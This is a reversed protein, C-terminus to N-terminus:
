ISLLSAPNPIVGWFLWVAQDQLSFGDDGGAHHHAEPQLFVSLTLSGLLLLNVVLFVVVLVALAFVFLIEFGTMRFFSCVIDGSLTLVVTGNFQFSTHNVLQGM